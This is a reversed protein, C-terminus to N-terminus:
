IDGAKRHKSKEADFGDPYRAQLKCINANAIDDMEWDNATCLEAIFWLLDGVERKVHNMDLAHGQYVKQYISHVEGIEAVMGHLAHQEQEGYTLEWNMTRAAKQQYDHFNM